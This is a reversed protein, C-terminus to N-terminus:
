RADPNSSVYRRSRRDVTADPPRGHSEFYEYGEELNRWFDIWNSGEHRRMNAATMRFPFAHVRLFPQGQRLAAELITYIEEIGRDTMAYCGISVCSGHVMLASGTRKLLREYANPYGLDFSLHFKSWPNLRDPTVFYFGEPSQLDGSRRKPGLAGSFNCIPYTKFLGFRGSTQELWVELQREQKFIRVFAPAGLRLNARRLEERVVPAIRRSVEVSRGRGINGEAADLSGALVVVISASLLLRIANRM